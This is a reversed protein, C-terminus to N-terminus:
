QKETSITKVPIHIDQDLDFRNSPILGKVYVFGGDLITCVGKGKRFKEILPEDMPIIIEGSLKTVTEIGNNVMFARLKKPNKTTLSHTQGKKVYSWIGTLLRERLEKEFATLIEKDLTRIQECIDDFPTLTCCEDLDLMVNVENVFWEYHEELYERIIPWNIVVAKSWTNWASNKTQIFERHQNTINLYSNGALDDIWGIRDYFTTRNQPAPREGLLVHLVNSIHSPAIPEVFEMLETRPTSTGSWNDYSKDRTAKHKRFLKADKFGLILYHTNM